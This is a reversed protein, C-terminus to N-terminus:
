EMATLARLWTVAEDVAKALGRARGRAAAQAARAAGLAREMRALAVRADAEEDEMGAVSVLGMWEAAAEYEGQKLRMRVAKFLRWQMQVSNQTSMQMQFADLMAQAGVAERGAEFELWAIETLAGAQVEIDEVQRGLKLATQALALAQTNEGLHKHAYSRVLHIDAQLKRDGIEAAITMAADLYKLTGAYDTMLTRLYGLRLRCYGEIRRLGQEQALALCTELTPEAVRYRHQRLAVMGLGFMNDTLGVFNRTQNSLQRSRLFYHEAQSYEGRNLYLYAISTLTMAVSEIDHLSEYLNLAAGLAEHAEQMQGRRVLVAGLGRLAAAQEARKGQAEAISVAKEYTASAQQYDGLAYKADGLLRAIRSRSDMQTLDDGLQGLVRDLYHRATAAGGQPILYEAIMIAYRSEHELNGVAHWHDALAFWYGPEQPHVEEITEAVLRHLHRVYDDALEVIVAQRVQEHTFRWQGASVELVAAENWRALWDDYDIEDDIARLVDIDVDRGMIAAVRLMTQFDLSLRQIRRQLIRTIGVAFVRQPLPTEEISTLRGSRDALARLLEVIFLINGETEREIL